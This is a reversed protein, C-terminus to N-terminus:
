AMSAVLDEIWRDQVMSKSSWHVPTKSLLDIEFLLPQNPTPAFATSVLSRDRFLFVFSIWCKKFWSIIEVGTASLHFPSLKQRKSQSFPSLNYLLARIHNRRISPM